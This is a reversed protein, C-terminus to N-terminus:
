EPSTSCMTNLLVKSVIDSVVKLKAKNIRFIEDPLDKGNQDMVPYQTITLAPIGAKWFSLQDSSPGKKIHMNYDAFLKSVDTEKGNRTGLIAKNAGEEGICDLNIDAIIHKREDETLKNVYYRSGYLYNEEGSFLLFRVEINSPFNVINRAVEMLVAVGSANDIAGTSHNTTDYHASVIIIDNSGPTTPNKIAILNQSTGDPKGINFDFFKADGNGFPTNKLKLSQLIYPFEQIKTKYGFAELQLRLYECVTKEEQSGIPRTTLTIKEITNMMKNGDTSLTDIDSPSAFSTTSSTVTDTNSILEYNKNSNNCGTVVFNLAALLIIFQLFNHKNIFANKNL